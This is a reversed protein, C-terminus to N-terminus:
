DTSYREVLTAALAIRSLRALFVHRSRVAISHQLRQTWHQVPGLPLDSRSLM